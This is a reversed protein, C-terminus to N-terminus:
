DVEQIGSCSTAIRGIHYGCLQLQMISAVASNPLMASDTVIAMTHYGAPSTPQELQMM